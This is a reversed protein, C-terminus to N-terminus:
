HESPQACYSRCITFEARNRGARKARYLARDAARVLQAVACPETGFFTAGGISISAREGGDADLRVGRVAARLGGAFEVLTKPRAGPLLLAFEDGAYRIALDGGRRCFQRLIDAIEVLVRDGGDHGYRDNCQKFHDVDCILLSLPKGTRVARRLESGAVTDFHRRNGLGTLPDLYVLRQLREIDLLLRRNTEELEANRAELTAIGSFAERARAGAARQAAHQMVTSM